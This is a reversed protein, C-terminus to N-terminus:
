RALLPLAGMYWDCNRGVGEIEKEAEDVGEGLRRREREVCDGGEKSERVLVLCMGDDRAHADVELVGRM